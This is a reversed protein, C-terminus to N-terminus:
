RCGACVYQHRCFLYVMPLTHPLTALWSSLRHLPWLEVGRKPAKPFNRYDVTIKMNTRGDTRGCPVRSGFSPNKHFKM